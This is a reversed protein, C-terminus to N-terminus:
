RYLVQRGISSINLSAPEIGPDPRDGSPPCPLGSWYQRSFGVSLPAKHTWPTEPDSMVSAFCALSLSLLLTRTPNKWRSTPISEDQEPYFVEASILRNSVPNYQHVQSDQLKGKQESLIIVCLFFPNYYNSSQLIAHKKM